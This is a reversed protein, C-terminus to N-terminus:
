ELFIIGNKRELTLCNAWSEAAKPLIISNPHCTLFLTKNRFLCLRTKSKTGIPSKILRSKKVTEKHYIITPPGVKRPPTSGNFFLGLVPDIVWIKIGARLWKVQISIKPYMATPITIKTISMIM